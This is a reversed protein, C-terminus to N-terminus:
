VFIIRGLDLLPGDMLSVARLGSEEVASLIEKGSPHEMPDGLFYVCGDAVGAAGGIFGYEYPPLQIAGNQIVSVGIGEACLAKAM